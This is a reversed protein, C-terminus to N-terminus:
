RASCASAHQISQDHKNGHEPEHLLGFRCINIDSIQASRVNILHLLTSSGPIRGACRSSGVRGDGFARDRRSWRDPPPTWTPMAAPVAFKALGDPKDIKPSSTIVGPKKAPPWIPNLQCIGFEFQTNPMSASALQNVASPVLVQRADEPKNTEALQRACGFM